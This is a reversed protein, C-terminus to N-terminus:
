GKSGDDSGRTLLAQERAKQVAEPNSPGGTGGELDAFTVARRREAPERRVTRADDGKQDTSPPMPRQPQARRSAPLNATPLKALEEAFANGPPPLFRPEQNRRDSGGQLAIHEGPQETQLMDEWAHRRAEVQQNLWVEKFNDVCVKQTLGKLNPLQDAHTKELEDFMLFAPEMVKMNLAYASDGHTKMAVQLADSGFMAKDPHKYIVHFWNNGDDGHNRCMEAFAERVAPKQFESQVTKKFEALTQFYQDAVTEGGVRLLSSLNKKGLDAGKDSRGGVVAFAEYARIVDRLGKEIPKSVNRNAFLDAAGRLIDHSVFDWSADWRVKTTVPGGSAQADEETKKFADLDRMMQKTHDRSETDYRRKGMGHAWVLDGAPPPAGELGPRSRLPDTAAWEQALKPATRLLKLVGEANKDKNGAEGRDCHLLFPLGRLLHEKVTTTMGEVTPAYLQSATVIEKFLTTEGAGRFVRPFERLRQDLEKGVSAPNSPDIGTICLVVRKQLEADLAKYETASARDHDRYVMSVKHPNNNYYLAEATLGWMQSPIGAAITAVVANDNMYAINEELSTVNGSYGTHHYHTDTIARQALDAKEPSLRAVLTPAVSDRLPVAAQALDRALASFMSAGGAAGNWLGAGAENDVADVFAPGMARSLATLLLKADTATALGSEVDRAGGRARGTRLADEQRLTRLVQHVDATSFDGQKFAETFANKLAQPDHQYREILQRPLARFPTSRVSAVLEADVPTSRPLLTPHDVEARPAREPRVEAESRVPRTIAATAARERGHNVANHLLLLKAEVAAPAKGKYAARVHLEANHLFLDPDQGTRRVHDAVDSVFVRNHTSDSVIQSLADTAQKSGLRAEQLAKVLSAVTESRDVRRLGAFHPLLQLAANQVPELGNVESGAAPRDTAGLQLHGQLLLFQVDRLRTTADKLAPQFAKGDESSAAANRLSAAAGALREAVQKLAGGNRQQLADPRDQLDAKVDHAVGELMDALLKAPHEGIHAPRRFVQGNLVQSTLDLKLKDDQGWHGDEVDKVVHDLMNEYANLGSQNFHRITVQNEIVGLDKANRDPHNFFHTFTSRAAALALFYLAFGGFIDAALQRTPRADDKFANSSAWMEVGLLTAGILSGVVGAALEQLKRTTTTRDSYAPLQTATVSFDPAARNGKLKPADEAQEAGMRHLSLKNLGWTAAANVATFTAGSAIARVPAGWPNNGIFGIRSLGLSVAGYIAVNAMTMAFDGWVKKQPGTTGSGSGPWRFNVDIAAGGALRQLLAGAEGGAPSMVGVMSAFVLPRIPAPVHAAVATPITFGIFNSALAGAFNAAARQMDMTVPRGPSAAAAGFEAIALENFRVSAEHLHQLAAASPEEGRALAQAVQARAQQQAQEADILRQPLVDRGTAQRLLALDDHPSSRVLAMDPGLTRLPPTQQVPALDRPM